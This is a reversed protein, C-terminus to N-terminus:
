DLLLSSIVIGKKAISETLATQMQKALKVKM